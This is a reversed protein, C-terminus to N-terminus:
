MYTNVQFAFQNTPRVEMCTRLTSIGSFIQSFMKMEFNQNSARSSTVLKWKKKYMGWISFEIKRGIITRKNCKSGVCWKYATAILEAWQYTCYGRTIIVFARVPLLSLVPETWGGGKDIRGNYRIISLSRNMEWLTFSLHSGEGAHQILSIQVIGCLVLYRM